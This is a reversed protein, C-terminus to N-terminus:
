LINVCVGTLISRTDMINETKVSNYYILASTYFFGYKVVMINWM